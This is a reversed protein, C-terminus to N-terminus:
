LYKVVISCIKVLFISNNFFQLLFAEEVVIRRFMERSSKTNSALLNSSFTPLDRCKESLLFYIYFVKLM